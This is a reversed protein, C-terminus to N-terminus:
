EGYKDLINCLFEETLEKEGSVVRLIVDITTCCLKVAIFELLISPMVMLACIFALVMNKGLGALGHQSLCVLGVLTSKRQKM